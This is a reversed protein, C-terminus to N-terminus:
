LGIMAKSGTKRFRVETSWVMYSTANDTLNLTVKYSVDRERGDKKMISMLRGDIFFDSQALKRATSGTAENEKMIAEVSHRNAVVFMGSELIGNRISDTIATTDIHETTRNMVEGFVVVPMHKPYHEAIYANLRESEKLARLVDDRIKQLDTMGFDLTTTEIADPDAYNVSRHTVNSACGAGMAVVVLALGVEGWFLRM